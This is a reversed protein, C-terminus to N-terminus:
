STLQQGSTVKPTARANNILWDQLKAGLSGPAPQEGQVGFRTRSVGQLLERCLCVSLLDAVPVHSRLPRSGLAVWLQQWSTMVTLLASVAQVCKLTVFDGGRRAALLAAENVVNALEAGSFGTAYPPPAPQSGGASPLHQQPRGSVERSGRRSLLRRM